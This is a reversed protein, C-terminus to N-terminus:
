AQKNTRKNRKNTRKNTQKNIQVNTEYTQKNIENTQKYTQKTQKSKSKEFYNTAVKQHFFIIANGTSAKNQLNSCVFIKNM